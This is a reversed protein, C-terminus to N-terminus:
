QPYDSRMPNAFCPRRERAPQHQQINTSNQSNELVDGEGTASIAKMLKAVVMANMESKQGRM